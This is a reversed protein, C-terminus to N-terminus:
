SVTPQATPQAPHSGKRALVDAPPLLGLQQFMEYVDFYSINEVVKGNKMRLVECTLCSVTKGTPPVGMFEGRQVGRWIARVVVRDGAVIVEEIEMTSDAFSKGMEGVRQRVVDKGRVAHPTMPDRLEIADDVLEDIVDLNGKAWIETLYRRAQIGNDVGM